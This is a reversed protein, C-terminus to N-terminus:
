VTILTPKRKNKTFSKRLTLPLGDPSYYGLVHPGFSVTISKDLHQHVSVKCKAFSFRLQSPSIQLLRHHFSVTNDKNVTREHKFCFITDLDASPPVPLFASGDLEPKRKFSRNHMKIYTTRIFKNAAEKTKIGRLRLEQPLRGQLTGNLRESRGRAQPSYAPIPQINLEKLARALQTAHDKAVESGAKRTLYFHSARDTYLSCFVGKKEVVNKILAMCSASDEEDVLAMDYVENNADDSIVILDLQDGTGLWDHPSGDMHLMMGVVPKRPRRLRHASKRPKAQMLGAGQLALRVWNYSIKINHDTKLKECFHRANFDYYQERYLHLIKEALELPVRRPSPTRRRRDFLGDYGYHEYRNKMRRMQRASLGLIEAAQMWLIKGSMARLMIEQIKMAREVAKPPYNELM